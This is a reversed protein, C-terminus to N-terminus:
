QARVIERARAWLQELGYHERQERTFLHIVVGTFDILVWGGKGSGERHTVHVGMKRSRRSIDEAMSELHRDTEGSIIVFYDAFTSIGQTDLLVIDSGLKESAEDVAARAIEENTATIKIQATDEM